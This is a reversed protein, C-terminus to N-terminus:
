KLEDPVLLDKFAPIEKMFDVGSFDPKVKLCFHSMGNTLMIYAAKISLNYAFAQDFWLANVLVSPAKCEVLVWPNGSQNFVLIDSRKRTKYLDFGREVSILGAPYTKYKM